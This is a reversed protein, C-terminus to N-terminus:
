ILDDEKEGFTKAIDPYFVLSGFVFLDLLFVCAIIALHQHHSDVGDTFFLADLSFRLIFDSGFRTAGFWTCIIAGILFARAWERLSLLGFGIVVFVVSLVPLLIMFPRNLLDELFGSEYPRGSAAWGLYGHWFRAFVYLLFGGKFFQFLAILIVPYPPRRTRTPPNDSANQRGVM